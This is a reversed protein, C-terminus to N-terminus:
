GPGKKGADIAARINSIKDKWEPPLQSVLKDLQDCLAEADTWRKDNVAAQAKDFLSNAQDRVAKTADAAVNEAKKAASEAADKVTSSSNDTAQKASDKLAESAEKAREQANESKTATPDNQDCGVIALGLAAILATTRLM